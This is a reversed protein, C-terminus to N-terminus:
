WVCRMYVGRIGWAIDVDKACLARNPDFMEPSLYLGSFGAVLPQHQYHLSKELGLLRFQCSFCSSPAAFRQSARYRLSKAHTPLCITLQVRRQQSSGINPSVSPGDM